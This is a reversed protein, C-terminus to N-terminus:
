GAVSLSPYPCPSSINEDLLFHQSAESYGPMRQNLVDPSIPVKDYDVMLNRVRTAASDRKEQTNFLEVFIWKPQYVICLNKAYRTQRKEHAPTMVGMFCPVGDFCWCWSDSTTDEPVNDPWPKTDLTRLRKAFLWYDRRYDDMTKPVPRDDVRPALIVLTTHLGTAHAVNLYGRLATAVLRVNRPESPDESHLFLFHLENARYGRAAYICPYPKIGYGRGLLISIFDEYAQRQWTGPSYKQEVQLKKLILNEGEQVSGVTGDSDGFGLRFVSIIKQFVTDLSSWLHEIQKSGDKAVSLVLLGLVFILGYTTYEQM